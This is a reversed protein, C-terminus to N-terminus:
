WQDTPLTTPKTGLAASSAYTEFDSDTARRLSEDNAKTSAMTQSLSSDTYHASLSSPSTSQHLAAQVAKMKLIPCDLHAKQKLAEGLSSSIWNELVDPVVQV